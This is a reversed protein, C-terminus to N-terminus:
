DGEMRMVMLVGALGFVINAGWASLLPPLAEARGLSLGLSMILWYGFGILVSIGVGFAIGSSRGGKLAFPIGLFAMILSTFPNSLKSHMDVAFKTPDYGESRLRGVYKRLESFSMEESRREGSTLVEPSEPLNIQLDTYTKTTIINKNIVDERVDYFMWETGSWAVEKAGIRKLLKFDNGLYYVTVGKLRNTEHDFLRINYIANDSRYWIKNQKFFSKQAQKKILVKEVFFVERNAYPIIYENSIFSFVSVFFAAAIIPAAIAYLSIGSSKMATIESNKSLLGLTMLTSLLVAVPTVQSIIKPLKFSYLKIVLILAPKHEMIMAMGQLIDVALYIVLFATLSLLLTKLFEGTIYRVLVPM